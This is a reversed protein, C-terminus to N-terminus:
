RGFARWGGPSGYGPGDGRPPRDDGGAYGPRGTRYDDGYMRRGQYQADGRAFAGGWAEDVMYGPNFYGRGRPAGYGAGQGSGPGWPPTTRYDARDYGRGFPRDYGRGGSRYGRDYGGGGGGGFWRDFWGRPGRFDRGYNAM